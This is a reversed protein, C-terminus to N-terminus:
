KNVNDCLHRDSEEVNPNNELYDRVWNCGRLILEDLTELQFYKFPTCDGISYDISDCQEIVLLSSDDSFKLEMIKNNDISENEYAKFKLLHRGSSDWLHVSDSDLAALLTGDSSLSYADYPNQKKSDTKFLLKGSSNRVYLSGFLHDEKKFVSNISNSVTGFINSKQIARQDPVKILQKEILNWLHITDDTGASALLEGNLSFAIQTIRGQQAKFEFLSRGDLNAIGIIGSDKKYFIQNGSPTFNIAPINEHWYQNDLAALRDFMILQKGNSSFILNTSEFGEFNRKFVALKKGSLFESLHLDSSRGGLDTHAVVLQNNADFGIGKYSEFNQSPQKRRPKDGSLDWLSITDIMRFGLSGTFYLEVIALQKGDKSFVLTPSYRGLKKDSFETFFETIKNGELNWLRIKGAQDATAILSGDRSFAIGSDIVGKHEELQVYNNQSLNHLTINGNKNTEALMLEGKSNLSINNGIKPVIKGNWQNIERTKYVMTRLTVTVKNVLEYNPKLLQLIWETKISKAARLSALSAELEQSLELNAEAAQRDAKIQGILADRQGILSFVLGTGLGLMVAIAVGWNRRTNFSKRAISRRVFEAEVQNLWNNESNLVKKLLDLRPNAHWLFKAQQQSNWEVAAPTLRRQLLLNEEDDQKWELLKQWGRVLADHAPEVYPNGDADVGNVLLRANTFREIVEEVLDKKEP